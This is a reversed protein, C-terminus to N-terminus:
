EVWWEHISGTVTTATGSSLVGWGYSLYYSGSLGSVDCNVEIETGDFPGKVEKMSVMGSTTVNENNKAASTVGLRFYISSATEESSIVAKVTDIDTLDVKGVTTFTRCTSASVNGNFYIVDDQVTGNIGGTRNEFVTGRNFLYDKWSVWVGNQYTQAVKAVWAYGIYQFCFTPYVFVENKKTVNIPAAASTGTVLWVVGDVPIGPETASFVFGTIEADTNIWITNEKPEIPQTVGGVVKFNLNSGGGGTMNFIM